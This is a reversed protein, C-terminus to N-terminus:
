FRRWSRRCPLRRPRACGTQQHACQPNNAAAAPARRAAAQEEQKEYIRRMVADFALTADDSLDVFPTRYRIGAWTFTMPGMHGTWYWCIRITRGGTYVFRISGLEREDPWPETDLEADRFFGLVREYDERPVAFRPTDKIFPSFIHCYSEATMSEIEDAAPIRPTQLLRVRQQEQTEYGADEPAADALASQPLGAPSLAGAAVLILVGVARVLRKSRTM